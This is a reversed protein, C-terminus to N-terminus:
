RMKRDREGNTEGHRGEVMGGRSEEAEFTEHSGQPKDAPLCVLVAAAVAPVESKEGESAGKEEREM